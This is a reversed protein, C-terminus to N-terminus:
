HVCNAMKQKLYLIHLCVKAYFNSHSDGRKSGNRSGCKDKKRTNSEVEAWSSIIMEKKNNKKLERKVVSIVHM